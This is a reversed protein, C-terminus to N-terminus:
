PVPVNIPLVGFRPIQKSDLRDLESKLQDFSLGMPSRGSGNIGYLKQSKADWVIALLDGGVGCSIPEMLGLAANAAIAADVTSGGQKLIDIAIETALPQATAAMGHSAIVESRTAFHKGTIRDVQGFSAIASGSLLLGLLFPPKVITIM